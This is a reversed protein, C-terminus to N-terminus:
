FIRMRERRLKGLLEEATWGPEVKIRYLGFPNTRRSSTRGGGRLAARYGAERALARVTRSQNSYPYAFVDPARGLVQELRERSRRLEDRARDPAIRALPPHTVSHAGFAVGEDQLACLQEADLLREQPEDADWVNTGGIQGSVIFMLAGLGRARLVPWANRAFCTYGDDFTIIVPREPIHAARGDRYALWDAVTISRYGSEVLADMQQEFREPSVYNGVRRVGPRLEDVKHYMLIPLKVRRRM